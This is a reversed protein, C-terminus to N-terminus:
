LSILLALTVCVNFEMKPFQTLIYYSWTHMHISSNFGFLRWKKSHCTSLLRKTASRITRPLFELFVSLFRNSCTKHLFQLAVVGTITTARNCFHHCRSEVLARKWIVCGSIFCGGHQNYLSFLIITIQRFAHYITWQLCNSDYCGM